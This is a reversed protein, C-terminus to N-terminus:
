DPLRLLLLIEAKKEWTEFGIKTDFIGFPFNGKRPLTGVVEAEEGIMMEDKPRWERTLYLTEVNVDFVNNKSM